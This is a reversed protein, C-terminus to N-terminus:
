MERFRPTSDYDSDLNTNRRAMQPEYLYMNIADWYPIGIFDSIVRADEKIQDYKSHDVVNVRSADTLVLNLEYSTYSSNKTKVREKIIQIAQVDDLKTWKKTDPVERQSTPKKFSKYHYGLQKSFGQPQLTNYAIFGAVGIFLLPMLIFPLELFQEGFSNKNIIFSVCFFAIPGIIFLGSFIYSFVTPKYVLTRSDKLILKRNKFNSGGGKKPEWSVKEALPNRFVQPHFPKEETKSFLNKFLSLM